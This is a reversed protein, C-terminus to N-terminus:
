DLGGLQIHQEPTDGVGYSAAVRRLSAMRWKGLQARDGANTLYRQWTTVFRADGPNLKDAITSLETLITKAEVLDRNTM